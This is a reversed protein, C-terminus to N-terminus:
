LFRHMIRSLHVPDENPPKSNVASFNSSYKIALPFDSMKNESKKEPVM